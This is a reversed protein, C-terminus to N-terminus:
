LFGKKRQKPESATKPDAWSSGLSERPPIRGPWKASHDSKKLHGTSAQM